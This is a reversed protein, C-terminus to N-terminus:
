PNELIVQVLDLQRSLGKGVLARLVAAQDGNNAPGILHIM